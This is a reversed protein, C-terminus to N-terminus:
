SKIGNKISSHIELNELLGNEQCYQEISVRCFEDSSADITEVSEILCEREDLQLKPHTSIITFSVWDEEKVDERIHHFSSASLHHDPMNAFKYVFGLTAHCSYCYLNM